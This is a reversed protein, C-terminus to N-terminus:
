ATPVESQIPRNVGIRDGVILGITAVGGAIIWLWAIMDLSRSWATPLAGSLAIELFRQTVLLNLGTLALFGIALASFIYPAIRWTIPRRLWQHARSPLRTDALFAAEEERYGVHWRLYLARAHEALLHFFAVAGLVCAFVPFVMTLWGFAKRIAESSYPLAATALIAVLWKTSATWFFEHRYKWEEWAGFGERKESNDAM